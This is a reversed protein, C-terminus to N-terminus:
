RRPPAPASTTQGASASRSREWSCSCTAGTTTCRRTTGTAATTMDDDIHNDDDGDKKKKKNNNNNNNKNNNNHVQLALTIPRANPVRLGDTGGVVPPSYGEYRDFSYNGLPGSTWLVGLSSGNGADLAHLSLNAASPPPADPPPTYGTVYRLPVTVSSRAVYRLSVTM